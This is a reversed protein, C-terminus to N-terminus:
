SARWAEVEEVVRDARGAGLLEVLTPYCARALSPSPREGRLCPFAAASGAELLRATQKHLATLLKRRRDLVVLALPFLRCSLPKLAGRPRGSADELQHLGCRLGEVPDPVAFVCRRGPRTLGDEDRWAPAGGKWRPDRPAMWAELEPLAAELAEAEEPSPTLTLDACCSRRRPARLGPACTAPECAHPQALSPLDLYWERDLRALGGRAALQVLRVGWDAETTHGTELWREFAGM